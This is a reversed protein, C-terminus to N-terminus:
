SHPFFDRRINRDGVNPAPPNDCCWNNTRCVYLHLIKHLLVTICLVDIAESHRKGEFGKLLQCIYKQTHAPMAGNASHCKCLFLVLIVVPWMM